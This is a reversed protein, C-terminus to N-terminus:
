QGPPPLGSSSSSFKLSPVTSPLPLHVTSSPLHRSSSKGAGGLDSEAGMGQGGLGLGGGLGDREDLEALRKHEEQWDDDLSPFTLCLVQHASM